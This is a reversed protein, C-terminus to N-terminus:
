SPHEHNPSAADAAPAPAPADGQRYLAETKATVSGDAAVAVDLRAIGFPGRPFGVLHVFFGLTFGGGPTATFSPPALRALVEAPVAGVLPSVQERSSITDGQIGAALRCLALWQEPALVAPNKAGDAARVLREFADPERDCFVESGGVFVASGPVDPILPSAEYVTVHAAPFEAGKRIDWATDAPWDGHAKAHALAAASVDAVPAGSGKRCAGTWLVVLALVAFALHPAPRRNM